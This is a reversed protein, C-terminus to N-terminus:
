ISLMKKSLFRDIIQVTLYLTNEKFKFIKYIIMTLWNISINRIDSTFEINNDNDNSIKDNYSLYNPNIYNKSIYLEEDLLFNEIM